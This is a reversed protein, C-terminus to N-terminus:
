AILVVFGVFGVKLLVKLLMVINGTLLNEILAVFLNIFDVSFCCCCCCSSLILNLEMVFIDLLVSLFKVFVSNVIIIVHIRNMVNNVNILKIM